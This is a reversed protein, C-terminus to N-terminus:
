IELITKTQQKLKLVEYLKKLSQYERHSILGDDKWCKKVDEKMEPIEETFKHIENLEDLTAPEFPLIVGFYFVTAIIGSICIFIFCALFAKVAPHM